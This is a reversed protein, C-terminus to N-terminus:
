KTSRKRTQTKSSFYKALSKTNPSEELIELLNKKDSCVSSRKSKEFDIFFVKKQDKSLLINKLEVDNHCIKHTEMWQLQKKLQAALEKANKGKYTNWSVHELYPTVIVRNLETKFSDVLSLGWWSPLEKLVSTEMRFAKDARKADEPNGVESWISKAVYLNGDKELQLINVHKTDKLPRITYGQPEYREKVDLLFQKSLM